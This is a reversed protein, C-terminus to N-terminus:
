DANVQIEGSSQRELAIPLAGDLDGLVREVDSDAFTASVRLGPDIEPSLNIPTGTYKELREFVVNLPEGLFVISGTRWAAVIDPAIEGLAQLRGDPLVLVRSGPELLIPDLGADLAEVRVSGQQVAVSVFSDFRGVEFATGTVTIKAFETEVVFTRPRDPAVEFFAEGSALRITTLDAGEEVTLEARANLILNDGSALAVSVREASRSAYSQTQAKPTSTMVGFVTVAGVIAVAAVLGSIVTKFAGSRRGAMSQEVQAGSSAAWARRARQYDEENAANLLRWRACLAHDEPSAEGSMLRVVWGAGDRPPTSPTHPQDKEM